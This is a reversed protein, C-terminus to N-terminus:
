PVGGPSQTALYLAVAQWDEASLRSVVFRMTGGLDNARRGEAWDQLAARTYDQHQGGIYPFAAHASVRAASHCEDCAPIQRVPDGAVVLQRGRALAADSDAPVQGPVYPATRGSWAAAIDAMQQPQLPKALATMVPHNRSGTAYDHLQKLLYYACQGSLRPAGSGNLPEGNRGHCSACAGMAAEGRRPDASALLGMWEMYPPAARYAAAGSADQGQAAPWPAMMAGVVLLSALTRRRSTM